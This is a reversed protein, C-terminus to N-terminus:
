KSHMHSSISINAQDPEATFPINNHHQTRKDPDTINGLSFELLYYYPLCAHDLLFVGVEVSLNPLLRKRPQMVVAVYQGGNRFLM